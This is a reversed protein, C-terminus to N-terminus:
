TSARPFGPCACTRARTTSRDAERRVRHRQAAARARGVRRDRHRFGAIQAEPTRRLGVVSTGTRQYAEVLQRACSAEGDSRYLHDGLMLLFPEDGLAERACYVAHGFGEQATQTVFRM